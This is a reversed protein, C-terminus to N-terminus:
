KKEVGECRGKTGVVGSFSNQDLDGQKLKRALGMGKEWCSGICIAGEKKKGCKRGKRM